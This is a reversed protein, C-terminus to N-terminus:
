SLFSKLQRVEPDADVKKRLTGLRVEKRVLHDRDGSEQIFSIAAGLLDSDDSGKRQRKSGFEEPYRSELLWQSVKDDGSRARKSLARLLMHKYEIEKISIVRQIIPFKEAMQRFTDTSVNAIMCAENLQLGDKGIASAITKLISYDQPTLTAQAETDLSAAALTPTEDIPVLEKKSRKLAGGQPQPELTVEVSSDEM